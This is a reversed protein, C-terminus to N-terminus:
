LLELSRQTSNRYLDAAAQPTYRAFRGKRNTRNRMFRYDLGLQECLHPLVGSVGDITVIKNRRTNRAQVTRTAWKVNDPEYSRDNFIREITHKPTPRPGVYAYFAEFNNIWGAYVGINRAGYDRFSKCRRDYCREIMKRWVNHEPIDRKPAFYHQVKTHHLKDACTECRQSKGQLLNQSYVENENGCSCRCLWYVLYKRKPAIDIVEWQGFTDGIDISRTKTM